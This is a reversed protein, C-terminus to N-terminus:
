KEYLARPDAASTRQVRKNALMLWSTVKTLRELSPLINCGFVGIIFGVYHKWSEWWGSPVTFLGYWMDAHVGNRLDHRVGSHAPARFVLIYNPRVQRVVNPRPWLRVEIEDRQLLNEPINIFYFNEKIELIGGSKGKVLSSSKIFSSFYQWVPYSRLFLKKLM